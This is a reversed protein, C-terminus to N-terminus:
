SEGRRRLPEVNGVGIAPVMGVAARLGLVDAAEGALEPWAERIQHYNLLGTASCRTCENCNV